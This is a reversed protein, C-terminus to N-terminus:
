RVVLFGIPVNGSTIARTVDISETTQHYATPDPSPLGLARSASPSRFYALRHGDPGHLSAVVVPSEDGIAELVSRVAARDQRLLPGRCQAGILSATRSLENVTKERMGEISHWLHLLSALVLVLFTSALFLLTVKHKISPRRDLRVM